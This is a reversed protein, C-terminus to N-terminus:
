DVEILFEPPNGEKRYLSMTRGLLDPRAVHGKAGAWHVQTMCNNQKYSKSNRDTNHSLKLSFSGYNLGKVVIQFNATTREYHPVDPDKKWDLGAFAEDRFFHRQDIGTNEGKKWLMSGAAHTAKKKPINLDRETLAKSEWVLVFEPDLMPPAPAAKPTATKTTVPAVQIKVLSQKRKPAAHRTLKMAPLSDRTGSRVRAAVLPALVLDEDMLRGEAFLADAAAADKIQFVHDPFRAPLDAFTKVLEEVVRKEDGDALDLKLIAGAEVNNHLGSFTMNASGIVVTADTKGVSLFLKPHFITARSGTDVAVVQVGLELLRKIAQVSTIDNRVGVFFTSVKAVAQLQPAISDVGTKLVFAVSGLVRQRDPQSFLKRLEDAHFRDTVAQLLFDFKAM